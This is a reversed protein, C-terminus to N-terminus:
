RRNCHLSYAAPSFFTLRIDLVGVWAKAGEGEDSDLTLAM